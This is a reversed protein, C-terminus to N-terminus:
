LPTVTGVTHESQGAFLPLLVQSWCNFRTLVFQKHERQTVLHLTLFLLQLAPSSHMSTGESKLAFTFTALHTGNEPQLFM